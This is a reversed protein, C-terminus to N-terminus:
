VVCFLIKIVPCHILKNVNFLWVKVGTVGINNSMDFSCMAIITSRCAIITNLANVHHGKHTYRYPAGVVERM